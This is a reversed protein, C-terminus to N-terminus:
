MEVIIALTQSHLGLARIQSLDMRPVQMSMELKSLVLPRKLAMLSKSIRSIGTFDAQFKFIVRARLIPIMRTKVTPKIYTKRGYDGM